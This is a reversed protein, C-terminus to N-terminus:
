AEQAAVGLLTVAAADVGLDAMLRVLSAVSLWDHEARAYLGYLTTILQRPAAQTM